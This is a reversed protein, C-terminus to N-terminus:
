AATGEPSYGRLDALAEAARREIRAAIWQAKRWRPDVIRGRLRYTAELDQVLEYLRHSETAAEDLAVIAEVHAEEARYGGVLVRLAASM